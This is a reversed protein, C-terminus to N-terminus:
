ILFGKLKSRIKNFRKVVLMKLKAIGIDDIRVSFAKQNNEIQKIVSRLQGIIVNQLDLQLSEAMSVDSTIIIERSMIEKLKLVM